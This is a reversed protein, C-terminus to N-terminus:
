PALGEFHYRRSIRRILEIIVIVGLLNALFILLLTFPPDWYVQHKSILTGILALIIVLFAYQEINGARFFDPIKPGFEVNMFKNLKVLYLSFLMFHLFVYYILHSQFLNPALFFYRDFDFKLRLYLILSSGILAIVQPSFLREVRYSKILILAGSFQLLAALWQLLVGFNDIVLFIGGFLPSYQFALIFNFSIILLTLSAIQLVMMPFKTIM